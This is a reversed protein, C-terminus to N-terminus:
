IWLEQIECHAGYLDTRFLGSRYRRVTPDTPAFALLPQAVRCIRVDPKILPSPFRPQDLPKSGRGEEVRGLLKMSAATTPVPKRHNRRVVLESRPKANPPDAM